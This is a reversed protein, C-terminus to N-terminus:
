PQNGGNLTQNIIENLGADTSLMNQLTDPNRQIPFPDYLRSLVAFPASAAEYKRRQSDEHLHVRVTIQRVRDRSIGGQRQSQRQSVKLNDRLAVRRDALSYMYFEGAYEIPESPPPMANKDDLYMLVLRNAVEMSALQRRERANQNIMYNLGSTVTATILALIAVAAVVELITM